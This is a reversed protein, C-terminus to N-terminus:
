VEKTKLPVPPQQMDIKLIRLSTRLSSDAGKPIVTNIAIVLLVCLHTKCTEKETSKNFNMYESFAVFSQLIKGKSKVAHVTTLLLPFIECFKTAKKSYIFKVAITTFVGSLFSGFRVKTCYPSSTDCSVM